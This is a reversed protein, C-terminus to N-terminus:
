EMADSSAWVIPVPDFPSALDPHSPLIRLTYGFPGSARCPLRGAYQYPGEADDANSCAMEVLHAESITDDPDIRGLYLEV